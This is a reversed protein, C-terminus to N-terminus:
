ALPADESLVARLESKARQYRGRATSAPIELLAAADVISFGDWHILRVLEALDPDLRAIADRVETGADHTDLGSFRIECQGWTPSVYTLSRDPNQLADSWVWDSAATAIGAGGVLLVALAGGVVLPRRLLRPRGAETRSARVMARVDRADVTHATPASADLLEDIQERSM